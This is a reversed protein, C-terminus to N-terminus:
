MSEFSPSCDTGLPSLLSFHHICQCSKYFKKVRFWQAFKLMACLNNPHFLIKKWSVKDLPLYYSFLLFSLSKERSWRVISVSSVLTQKFILCFMNESPSFVSITFKCRRIIFINEKFGNQWKLWVLCLADKHSLPENNLYLAM